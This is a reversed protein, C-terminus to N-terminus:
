EDGDRHYGYAWAFYAVVWIVAFLLYLTFPVGLAFVVSV